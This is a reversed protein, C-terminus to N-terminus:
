NHLHLTMEVRLETYQETCQVHAHTTYGSVEVGALLRTTAIAIRIETLKLVTLIVEDQSYTTM